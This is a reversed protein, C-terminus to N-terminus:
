RPPGRSPPAINPSSVFSSMVCYGLSLIRSLLIKEIVKGITDILSIPRYSSPLAPDKGPKLISTVRAHQWVPPFYLTRLIANFFAVLLLIMRQPFHKLARNPIGDPGQPRASKLVGSPMNFRQPTPDVHTRKV